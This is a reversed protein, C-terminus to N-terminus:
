AMPGSFKVVKVTILEGSLGNRLAFAGYDDHATATLSVAVGKGNADPALYDGASVVGGLELLATSGPGHVGVGRGDTAAYVSDWAETGKHSIGVPNGAAVCQTVTYDTGSVLAVFRSPSINGSAQYTPNNGDFM